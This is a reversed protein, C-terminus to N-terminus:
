NPKVYSYGGGNGNGLQGSDDIGCSWLTGDSKQAVLFREGSSVRLWTIGPLVQAPLLRGTLTGDSLQGNSNSGWAWLTGNQKIAYSSNMGLAVIAWDTDTGVRTPVLRNTTTGDGLQGDSNLGWCWLSGDPQIGASHYGLNYSAGAIQQWCQATLSATSTLFLITVFFLRYLLNWKIFHIMSKNKLQKLLKKIVRTRLLQM